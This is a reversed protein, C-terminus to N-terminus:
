LPRATSRVSDIRGSREQETGL